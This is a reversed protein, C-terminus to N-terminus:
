YIEFHNKRVADEFLSNEVTKLLNIKRHHVIIERIKNSVYKLPALEGEPIYEKVHIFYVKQSDALEVLPNQEYFRSPNPNIEFGPIEARLDSVSIWISDNLQYKSAYQRCYDELTYLDGPLRLYLAQRLEEIRPAGQDVVVYISRMIGERLPFVHHNEEYYDRIESQSVSTDLKQKVLNQEYIHRILSNRYERIQQEVDKQEETLNLEAKQLVLQEKGWLNIFGQVWQISDEKPMDGPYAENLDSANLYKDYVRAVHKDKKAPEFYKCSGLSLAALFILIHKNLKYHM